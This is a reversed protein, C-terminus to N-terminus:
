RRATRSRGSPSRCRRPSRGRSRASRRVGGRADARLDLADLRLLLRAAPLAGTRRGEPHALLSRCANADIDVPVALRRHLRPQGDEVPQERAERSVARNSRTRSMSGPSVCASTSAAAAASPWASAPGAAPRLRARGRSRRSSTPPPARRRRARSSRRAARRSSRRDSAPGCRRARFRRRAATGRAARRSRPARGARAGRLPVSLLWTSSAMKLASPTARASAHSLCSAGTLSLRTTRVSAAGAGKWPAGYECAIAAPPKTKTEPWSPRFGPSM